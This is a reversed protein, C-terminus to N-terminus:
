RNDGYTSSPALQGPRIFRRNMMGIAIMVTFLPSELSDYVFSFLIGMFIVTCGILAVPDRAGIFRFFQAAMFGLFLVTGILGTTFILRWMFGQTGLPPAACQHCDPTEGGAISSFSGTVARTDGYGLFPSLEATKSIVESAVTARRDNSQPTEVRLTVTDYLPSSVFVVAGVALLGITAYLVRTKGMAAMKASVLLLAAILGIWLGRNLSYAIPILAIALLLAGVPRRWGAGKALWTAVFFPMFLGLNNGWANAYAFPATPRPQSYGLFDSASVVSPHILNYLFSTKSIPLVLEALSPFDLNPVVLGMIGGFMTYVFMWGLLRSIKENPLDKEAVNLVYMAVITIAFYWVLRYGYPELKGLGATPITGPPNVWLLGGGVCVVILFMLWLGWSTPVYVPRRRMLEAAMVIAMILFIFHSLGVVWWLPFWLYLATLPWGPKLLRRPPRVPPEATHLVTTAIAV